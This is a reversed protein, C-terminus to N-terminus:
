RACGTTEQPVGSYPPQTLQLGRGTLCQFGMLWRTWLNSKNSTLIGEKQIRTGELDKLIRAVQLKLRSAGM